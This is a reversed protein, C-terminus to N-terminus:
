AHAAATSGIIPVQNLEADIGLMQGYIAGRALLDIDTASGFTGAATYLAEFFHLQNVFQQVQAPSGPHGFVHAYADTAFAADGTASNPYSPNSPGFTSQFHSATSALAAGLAQYAYVEPDMVGIQQGYAFQQVTFGHLVGLEVADPVVNYESQYVTSAARDASFTEPGVTIPVSTAGYLGSTDAGDPSSVTGLPVATANPDNSYARIYDISFHKPDSTVGALAQMALDALLYMPQHMDAPTPLQGTVNGDFYFTIHQADWMVGYTHYGSTMSPQNSWVQQYSDGGNIGTHVTGIDWPGGYAEFVDLEPPWAGSAPVMWFAPWVGVDSPLMARMEFYGYEQSFSYQTSILGSAWQGPGVIDPGAPVATINLAGNQLSFANIGSGPDVFASDGFGIDAYANLRSGPRIDSWVTGSGQSISASDFEDDFTLHYGTLDLMKMGGFAYMSICKRSLFAFSLM